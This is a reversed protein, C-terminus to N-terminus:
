ARERAPIAPLPPIIRAAPAGPRRPTTSIVVESRAGGVGPFREGSRALPEGSVVDVYIGPEDNHLYEGTGPEETAGQQTVRYQEKTLNAVVAPDRSYKPM